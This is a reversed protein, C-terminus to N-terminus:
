DFEKMDIVRMQKWAGLWYRIGFVIAMVAVWVTIVGWWWNLGGGLRQGLSEGGAVVVAGILLSALFVFRTDGAGKLASILLIQVADLMCYLAIFRLLPLLLPRMKEFRAPDTGLGYLTLVENPFLGYAVAFLSTYGVAIMMGSRVTREAVEVQGASLRQGVLVAVAMGLGNIPVFALLNVGLALTTAAMSQAGLRGVLLLILSFAVSEALVHMGAPSGFRVLRTMLPWEIAGRPRDAEAPGDQQQPMEKWAAQMLWALLLAKVIMAVSTAMAAGPVGMAPISGWGFILLFDLLVNVITAILDCGLLVRTKGIGAFWGTLAASFFMAVAAPCLWRFYNTEERRLAEEHGSWQFIAGIGMGVPILLPVLFLALWLGQVVSRRARELRGVGMYQAVFTSTYGILGMPVCTLTWFLSGASMAASAAEDSKWYLLMRDTFLTISYLGTSLMLPWALAMVERAGGAGLWGFSGDVAEGQGENRSDQAEPQHSHM